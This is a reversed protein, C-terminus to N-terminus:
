KNCLRQETTNLKKKLCVFQRLILINTYTLVFRNDEACMQTLSVKLRCEGVQEKLHQETVTLRFEAPVATCLLWADAGAPQPAM